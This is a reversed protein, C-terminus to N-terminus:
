VRRLSGGARRRLTLLGARGPSRSDSRRFVLHGLVPGPARSSSNVEKGERDAGEPAPQRLALLKDAGNSSPDSVVSALRDAHDGALKPLAERDSQPPRIRLDHQMTSGPSIALRPVKGVEHARAGVALSSPHGRAQPAQNAQPQARDPARKSGSRTPSRETAGQKEPAAKGAADQAEQNPPGLDARPPPEGPAAQQRRTHGQATTPPEERPQQAPAQTPTPTRAPEAPEKAKNTQNPQNPTHGRGKRGKGRSHQM